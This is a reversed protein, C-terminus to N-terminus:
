LTWVGVSINDRGGADSADRALKDAVELDTDDSAMIETIREHDLDLWLGDTALLLRGGFVNFLDLLDDGFGVAKTVSGDWNEHDSTVQRLTGDVLHYARSDGLNAVVAGGEGDSVAFVLTTAPWNWLNRGYRRREHMFAVQKRAADAVGNIEQRNSLPTLRELAMTAGIVANWSADAGDPQGGMGDAVVLFGEGFAVADQQEERKKGVQMAIAKVGDTSVENNAQFRQTDM